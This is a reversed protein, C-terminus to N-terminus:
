VLHGMTDLSYFLDSHTCRYLHIIDGMGNFYTTFHHGGIANFVALNASHTEELVIPASSIHLAKHVVHATISTSRGEMELM